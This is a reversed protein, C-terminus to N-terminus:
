PKIGKSVAVGLVFVLAMIVIKFFWGLIGKGIAQDAQEVTKELVKEAILAAEEDTLARRDPQM